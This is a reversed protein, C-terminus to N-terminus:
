VDDDAELGHVIDDLRQTIDPNVANRADPRNLTVVVIHDAHRSLTVPGDAYSQLLRDLMVSVEPEAPSQRFFGAMPKRM